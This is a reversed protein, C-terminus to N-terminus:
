EAAYRVISKIIQNVETIIRPNRPDNEPLLYADVIIQEGHEYVAIRCPMHLLFNPHRELIKRAYELNCFEIVSARPFAIGARKAIGAGIRNHGTLRFNHESIAFKLDEVVDAFPKATSVTYRNSTDKASTMGGALLALVVVLRLCRLM